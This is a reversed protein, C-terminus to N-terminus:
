TLTQRYSQVADGDDRARRTSDALRNGAREGALAPAQYQKGAALIAQTPEGFLEAALVLDAVDTAPCLDLTGCSCNQCAM